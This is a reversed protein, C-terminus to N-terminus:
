PLREWNEGNFFEYKIPGLSDSVYFTKLLHGNSGPTTTLEYINEYIVGNITITDHVDNEYQLYGNYQGVSSAPANKFNYYIGNNGGGYKSVSFDLDHGYQTNFQQYCQQVYLDSCDLTEIEYWFISDYHVPRTILKQTGGFDDIFVLTDLSMNFGSLSSVKEVVINREECDDEGYITCSILFSSTFFYVIASRLKTNM